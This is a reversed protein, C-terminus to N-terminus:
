VPPARALARGHLPGSRIRVQELLYTEIKGSCVLHKADFEIELFKGFRSSNNNRVTQRWVKDAV